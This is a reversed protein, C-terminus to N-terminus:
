PEEKSRVGWVLIRPMFRRLTELRDPTPGKPLHRATGMGCAGCGSPFWPRAVSAVFLSILHFQDHRAPRLVQLGGTGPMTGTASWLAHRAPACPPNKSTMLKKGASRLQQGLRHLSSAMLAMERSHMAERSVFSPGGAGGCRVADLEPRRRAPQPKGTSWGSALPSLSPM